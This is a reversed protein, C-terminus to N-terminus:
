EDDECYSIQNESPLEHFSWIWANLRFRLWEPGLSGSTSKCVPASRLHNFQCEGNQGGIEGMQSVFDRRGLAAAAGDDVDIDHVAVEDRVDGEARGHDFSKARNRLQREVAVHHDFI